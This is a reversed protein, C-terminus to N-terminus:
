RRSLILQLSHVIVEFIVFVMIIRSELPIYPIQIGREGTEDLFQVNHDTLASVTMVRWTTTSGSVYAYEVEGYRQIRASYTVGGMIWYANITSNTLNIVRDTGKIFGFTNIKYQEPFIFLGNGWNTNLAMFGGGTYPYNPQTSVSFLSIGGSSAAEVDDMHESILPLELELEDDGSYGLVLQELLSVMYHIDTYLDSSDFSSSDFASEENVDDGEAACAPLVVFMLIFVASMVAMVRKM